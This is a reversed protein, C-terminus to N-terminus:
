KDDDDDDDDDDDKDEDTSICECTTDINRGSTIKPRYGLTDCCYVDYTVFDIRPEIWNECEIFTGDPLNGHDKLCEKCDIRAVLVVVLTVLFVVAYKM